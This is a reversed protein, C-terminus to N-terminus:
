WSVSWGMEWFGAELVTATRFTKCLQQMRTPSHMVAYEAALRELLERGERCAQQFDDAAYNAIWRWYPNGDRKTAPDNFLRMGIEGYGLLCPALATRLDLLDGSMGRDLTFRTYALNAVAEDTAALTERGIGWERCYSVHLESERGIHCVIDAAATIDAMSHAKYAALANCRAFNVLFIYDQTLYHRFSEAPLTGDALGRVFRHDVYADWEQACSQKLMDVFPTSSQQLLTKPVADELVMAVHSLSQLPAAAFHHNLPGHGQGLPQAHQIAAHTYAIARHVSQLVDLGGALCAAIAASLTCGTGHTSRTDIWAHRFLVSSSGDWLVDVVVAGDRGGDLPQDTAGDLVLHGGKVLVYRAGLAHLARAAAKMDDLSRIRMGTLVEAERVNPTVVTALPLLRQKLADVADTQLLQAGSTAVMVPDVVTAADGGAILDAVREVMDRSHLMGTKLADIGLDDRVSVFQQAVFDEPVGHVAQVGCTNQATLATVVSMGFVGLAAFTKLDAQIGAGGGSDSGAITLVRPPTKAARGNDSTM